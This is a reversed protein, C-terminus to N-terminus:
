IRQYQRHTSGKASWFDTRAVSICVDDRKLKGRRVYEAYKKEKEKEEKRRRMATHNLSRINIQSKM